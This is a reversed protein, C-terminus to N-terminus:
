IAQIWGILSDTKNLQINLYKRKCILTLTSTNYMYSYMNFCLRENRM